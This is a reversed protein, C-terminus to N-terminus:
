SRSEIREGHDLAALINELQNLETSEDETLKPKRLLEAYRETDRSTRPGRTTTLDFLPSTLLQDARYDDLDPIDTDISGDKRLVVIEGKYLGRLCLPDHTTVIFCLRPFARRLREVITMKWRPHLHVEIEDILAVGEAEQITPWKELVCFAIDAVMATVSQYGDSLQELRYITDGDRFELKGSERKPEASEPLLLSDRIAAAVEDFRQDSVNATDCLWKEADNLPATPDFLNKVRIYRNQDVDQLGKRPLLRTSGYGLLLIKPKPPDVTFNRQGRKFELRIPRPLNTLKIEVSGTVEEAQNRHFRSADLDLAESNAHQEGMLALAIGQLISSKGVGNEGLLMLWSEGQTPQPIQLTLSALSKFNTFAVREIRRSVQRYEETASLEETEVTFSASAPSDFEQWHRLEEIKTQSIAPGVGLTKRWKNPVNIGLIGRSVCQAMAAFYPRDPRLSSEFISTLESPSSGFVSALRKISLISDFRQQILFERNLGLTRITTRGRETAGIVLGDERFYLHENPDDAPNTPDLLLPQELSLDDDPGEAKPGAIPFRSSKTVNCAQCAPIMNEWEYALWWYVSKPRFQDVTAVGLDLPTECYACKGQFIQVLFPKYQHWIRSKFEYSRLPASDQDMRLRLEYNAQKAKELLRPDPPPRDVHIM